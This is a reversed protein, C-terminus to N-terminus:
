RSGKSMKTKQGTFQPVIFILFRSCRANTWTTASAVWIRGMRYRSRVTGGGDGLKGILSRLVRCGHVRTERKKERWLWETASAASRKEVKEGVTGTHIKRCDTERSHISVKDLTSDSVRRESFSQECPGPYNWWNDRHEAPAKVFVTVRRHLYLPFCVPPFSFFPFFPTREKRRHFCNVCLGGAILTANLWSTLM